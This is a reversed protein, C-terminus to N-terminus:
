KLVLKVPCHDSGMVDDMIVCDTVQSQFEENVCHYDIRWGANRERARTRYSWWTYHDPEDCFARFSDVYGEAVFEDMWAREEPLFGPSDENTDPNKLDIRKHAINYDGCLVVHRGERRLDNCLELMANCFAVKYNVRRGKDQSNPFYANILTFEDYSLVQVRGEIDFDELGMNTVELPPKKSYTAVGSYGPRQASHWHSSYADPSLLDAGLQEPKAKTEQICLIDPDEQALWELFGKKAIARIGNVNWTIISKM